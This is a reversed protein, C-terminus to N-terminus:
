NLSLSLIAPPMYVLREATVTEDCLTAQQYPRSEETWTDAILSHESTIPLRSPAEELVTQQLLVTLLAKKHLIDSITESDIGFDATPTCPALHVHMFIFKGDM